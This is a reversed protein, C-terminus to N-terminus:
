PMVLSHDKKEGGEENHIASQKDVIMDTTQMSCADSPKLGLKENAPTANYGIGVGAAKEQNM